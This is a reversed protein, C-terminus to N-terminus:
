ATSVDKVAKKGSLFRLTGAGVKYCLKKDYIIRFPLNYVPLTQM